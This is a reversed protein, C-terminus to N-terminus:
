CPTAAAPTAPRATRATWSNRWQHPKPHARPTLSWAGAPLCPHPIPQPAPHPETSTLAHPSTTRLLGPMGLRDGFPKVVQITLIHASTYSGLMIHSPAILELASCHRLPLRHAAATASVRSGLRVQGAVARAVSNAGRKTNATQAAPTRAASLAM